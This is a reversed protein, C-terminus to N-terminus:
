SKKKLDLVLYGSTVNAKARSISGSVFGTPFYKIKGNEIQWKKRPPTTVPQSGAGATGVSLYASSNQKQYFNGLQGGAASGTLPLTSGAKVAGEQEDGGSSGSGKDLSWNKRLPIAASHNGAGSGGVSLYASCNQKQHFNGVQAGAVSGPLPPMPGARGQQDGVAGPAATTRIGGCVSKAGGAEMYASCNRKQQFNGMMSAKSALNIGVGAGSATAGVDAYGSKPSPS